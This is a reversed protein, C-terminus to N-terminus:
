AKFMFFRPLARGLGVNPNAIGRWGHSNTDKFKEKPEAERHMALATKAASINDVTQGDTERDCAHKTVFCFCRPGVATIKIDSSFTIAKPKQILMGGVYEGTVPV